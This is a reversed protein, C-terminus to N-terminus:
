EGLKRISHRETSFYCVQNMVVGHYGSKEPRVVELSGYLILYKGLSFGFLTMDILKLESLM